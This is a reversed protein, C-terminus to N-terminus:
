LLLLFMFLTGGKMFVEAISNTLEPSLRAHGFGVLALADVVM